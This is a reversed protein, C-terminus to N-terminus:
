CHLGCVPEGARSRPRCRRRLAPANVAGRLHPRRRRGVDARFLRRPYPLGGRIRFGRLAGVPLSRPLAPATWWASVAQVAQAHLRRRAARPDIGRGCAPGSKDVPVLAVCGGDGPGEAGRRHEQSSPVPVLTGGRRRDREAEWRSRPLRVPRRRGIRGTSTGPQPRDFKLAIRQVYCTYIHRIRTIESRPAREMPPWLLRSRCVEWDRWAVSARSLM